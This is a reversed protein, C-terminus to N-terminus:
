KFTVRKLGHAKAREVTATVAERVVHKDREIVVEIENDISAQTSFVIDIESEDYSRGDILYSDKVIRVLMRGHAQPKTAAERAGELALAPAETARGLRYDLMAQMRSRSEPTFTAARHSYQANMITDSAAEHHVGLSHGLEHLFVATTKHIRRSAHANEREDPSLDPFAAAFARREEVNSYGRMVMLRGGIQAVGLQDFTASVLGLSSTLGIVCLAGDGRYVADLARMHEELTASPAHHKWERYDAVLKVGLQPGLVANAYDLTGEFTRRWDLNQARYQDDAYVRITATAITGRYVREMSLRAPLLDSLVDHQAETRSKGGGFRMVPSVFCGV